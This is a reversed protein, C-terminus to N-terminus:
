TTSRNRKVLWDFADAEPIARSFLFGQFSDCGLNALFRQQGPTEVGEAVVGLGMNHALGITATCIAADNSDTELDQVFARDLKLYDVPLRKLYALSSYGTGFDDIAVRAGLVRIAGLREISAQPDQM